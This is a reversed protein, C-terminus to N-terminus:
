ATVEEVLPVRVRGSLLADALLDKIRKLVELQCQETAIRLDVAAVLEAIRGQEKPAPKPVMLSQLEETIVRMTGHTSPTPLHLLEAKRSELVALLFDPSIDSHCVLAKIDQNFACRVRAIAVPFSHALIMGRVVLLITGPEVIRSGARAGAETVHDIADFLERRKMDKPSIWPVAGSWYDSRDKSPTGGSLWAGCDGLRVVEWCAPVTGIGPVTKWETHWGPVGRTLLEQLLAKRVDETATIVAETKEIAEDICRLVAGITHQEAADFPPLTLEEEFFWTPVRQRGSTGVMRAVARRRVEPSVAVQYVFEPCAGNRPALVIFETSGFGVDCGDLSRVMSTKGNETCPTIRAFLTDGIAFRSGQGDFVRRGLYRLDGGGEPLAAMEVFPYEEGRRLHRKPNVEAYRTFPVEGDM